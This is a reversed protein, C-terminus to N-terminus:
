EQQEPKPNDEVASDQKLPNSYVVFDGRSYVVPWSSIEYVESSVDDGKPPDKLIASLSDRHLAIFKAKRYSSNYVFRSPPVRGFYSVTKGEAIFGQYLEVGHAKVLRSIHSNSLVVDSPKTNDDLFGVVDMISAIDQRVLGVGYVFSLVDQVLLVAFPYFVLLFVILSAREVRGSFLRLISEYVRPLLVGLGLSFFPYLPLVMHDTRGLALTLIFLPLFFSLTTKEGLVFLGFLGVWFYDFFINDHGKFLLDDSFPTNTRVALFLNLAALVLFSDQRLLWIGCRGFTFTLDRVAIIRVRSYLEGLSEKIRRFYLAVLFVIGFNLAFVRIGPAFRALAYL